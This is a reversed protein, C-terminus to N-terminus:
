RGQRREDRGRRGVPGRPGNEFGNSPNQLLLDSPTHGPWDHFEGPPSERRVYKGIAALLVGTQTVCLPTTPGVRLLFSLRSAPGCLELNEDTSSRM